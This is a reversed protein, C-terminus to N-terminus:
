KINMRVGFSFTRQLPYIKEDSQLLEPDVYQHDFAGSFTLANEVSTYLRLQYIHFKQTLQNPFTYGLQVNKLRMYATNLLYGSQAIQNKGAGNNMDLRPFYGNPNSPTWRDALKPTIMSQYANTLNWFYNNSPM